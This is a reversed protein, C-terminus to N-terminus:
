QHLIKFEVRRNKARGEDTDNSAVPREMGFGESELRDKSIGKSTLYRAVSAARRTSLGKNYAAGGRNDTHGYVGLRITPRERMLDVVEDLIPFSVPLINDKNYEFQIPELLKVETESVVIKKKKPPPCGNKKPDDNKVGKELPCADEADLIGDKDADDEPCGDEDEIGDKDEPVDPCKDRADPIGDDDRDLDPCGDDPYPPKGDEKITPCQDIDDPFGDGDTDKDAALAVRDAAKWREAKKGPGIDSLYAHTGIQMLLRFDDGGYGPALRTGLGGQLYWSKDKNMERRIQALWEVQTNQPRFFANETTAPAPANQTDTVDHIGFQGWLEAGIRTYDDFVPVFAGFTWRVENGVQLASPSPGRTPRFHPGLMWTLMLKDIHYEFNTYIFVTTEKDSTFRVPNGTPIFLAGGGGWRFDRDDSELGLLRLSLRTDFLGAGRALGGGIPDPTAESPDQGGTSIVAIPQMIEFGIRKNIQVGAGLYTIVQHEIPNGQVNLQRDALNSLRLPDLSYGLTGSAYFRATESMIPRWTMFPDDPAGSLQARDLYFSGSDQARAPSSLCTAAFLLAGGLLATPLKQPSSSM